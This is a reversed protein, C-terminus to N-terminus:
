EGEMVQRRWNRWILVGAGILLLSGWTLQGQPTRPDLLGGTVPRPICLERLARVRRTLVDGVVLMLVGAVLYLPAPLPVSTM